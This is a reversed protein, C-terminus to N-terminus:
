FFLTILRLRLNRLATFDGQAAADHVNKRRGTRPRHSQIKKTIFQFRQAFKIRERLDGAPFNRTYSQRRGALQADQLLPLILFWQGRQEIIQRAFSNKKQATGIREGDMRIAIFLLNGLAIRKKNRPRVKQNLQITATVGDNFKRFFRLNALSSQLKFGEVCKTRQRFARRFRLNGLRLAAFKKLLQMAPQSLIKEDVNKAVVIAFALAKFFDPLFMTKADFFFQHNLDTRESASKNAVRCFDDNDGIRFNKPAVFDLARAPLFIGMRLGRARREVDIERIQLFAIQDHMQLVADPTIPTQFHHRHALAAMRRRTIILGHICVFTENYFKRRGVVAFFRRFKIHGHALGMEDAFIDARALRIRRQVLKAARTPCLGLLLRFAGHAVDRRFHQANLGHAFRLRTM